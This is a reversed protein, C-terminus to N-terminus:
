KIFKHIIPWTLDAYFRHGEPGLVMACKYDKRTNLYPRKGKVFVEKAPDMPLIDDKKGNVQIFCKPYAMAMLDSMDFYEAIHPVFNPMVGVLDKFTCMACSPIIMAPRDDLAGVYVSTTGGDSNGIVCMTKVDIKDAFETELVDMLRQVDWVREGMTATDILSGIPESSCEGLSRQEITVAAYGEKIARLAFDTDNECPVKDTSVHIGTSHGQICIMVPPNKIGDPLLLHCPVRYGEESAFSFRINTAGEIKEEYEIETDPAVKEFRDLGILEALKERAKKQWTFIEADEPNYSMSPVVKQMLELNYEYASKM